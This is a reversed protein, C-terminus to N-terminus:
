NSLELLFQWIALANNDKEKVEYNQNRNIIRLMFDFGVNTNEIWYKKKAAKSEDFFKQINEFPISFFEKRLQAKANFIWWESNRSRQLYTNGKSDRYISLFQRQVQSEELTELEFEQKQSIQHDIKNIFFISNGSMPILLIESDCDIVTMFPMMKEEIPLEIYSHKQLDFDLLMIKNGYYPLIWFEEEILSITFCQYDDTIKVYKTRFDMLNVSFLGGKKIPLYLENGKLVASNWFFSLDDKDLDEPLVLNHIRFRGDLKCYEVILGNKNGIFFLSHNWRVVNSFASISFDNEWVDQELFFTHFTSSKIDYRLFRRKHWRPAIIIMNDLRELLSNEGFNNEWPVEGMCEINRTLLNVKYLAPFIDEYSIFWLNEEDVVMNAFCKKDGM